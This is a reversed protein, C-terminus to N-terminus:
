RSVPSGTLDIFSFVNALFAWCLYALLFFAVWFTTGRVAGLRNGGWGGGWGTEGQRRRWSERFMANAKTTSSKAMMYASMVVASWRRAAKHNSYQTSSSKSPDSMVKSLVPQETENDKGAVDICCQFLKVESFCHPVSYCKRGQFVVVAWGFSLLDCM